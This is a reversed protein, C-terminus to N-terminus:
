VIYYVNGMSLNYLCDKEPSARKVLISLILRQMERQLHHLGLLFDGLFYNYLSVCVKDHGATAALILPHLVEQGPARKRRGPEVVPEGTGVDPIYM